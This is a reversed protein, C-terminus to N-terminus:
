AGHRRGPRLYLDAVSAGARRHHEGPDITSVLIVVAGSGYIPLMPGHLFGRNVWHRKRVSVYCSEWVWGIFSYIFFFILWQSLHYAHM